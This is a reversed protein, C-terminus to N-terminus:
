PTEGHLGDHSASSCRPIVDSPHPSVTSTAGFLTVNHVTINSGTICNGRFTANTAETAWMVFREPFPVPPCCVAVSPYSYPSDFVNDEVIVHDSSTVWLNMQSINQLRNGRIVVASHGHPPGSAFVSGPAVAGLALGGYCQAGTCVSKVTNNVVTLNHTYDGEGWSLEPTIIIGGLTSNEIHNNAILGNSAKILMGRARHNQIRNGQLVFRSCSRNTNFVVTDRELRSPPPLMGEVDIMQYWAAPEPDLAKNPLMKSHNIPPTYHGHPEAQGVSTVRVDGSLVFNSDYLRVIDGNGYDASTVWLTASTSSRRVIDVIVSYEGHLAIGDDNHGEIVSDIITPGIPVGALHFGDASASLVPDVTAGAPRDPYTLRLRLFTNGGDNAPDAIGTPSSPHGHFFGFGPGGLVSIDEFRSQSCGDVHFTFAFAGNRCGLTDGVSVDQKDPGVDRPFKLEFSRPGGAPHPRVGSATLDSTGVKVWKGEGNPYVNCHAVKSATWDEMPYGDPVTGFVSMGDPSFATITLQNTPIEAYAVTLGKMTVRQWNSVHVATATRDGMVLTVNTFDIDVDSLPKLLPM